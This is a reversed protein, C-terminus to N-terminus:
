CTDNVMSDLTVNVILKYAARVNVMSKRTLLHQSLPTKM